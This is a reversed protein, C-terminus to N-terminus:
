FSFRAGFQFQRPTNVTNTIQGFAATSPTASVVTITPVNPYGFQAKNPLNYASADFRLEKHEGLRFTKYISVDLERAGMTRVQDLYAPSTGPVFPSAPFSFCNPNFWVAATHPAGTAPNCTMDPRQDFYPVAAGVTPSEIPIGTGLYLIGNITWGGAIANSVGNLNVARGSGVPLDYSVQGTFQYKV